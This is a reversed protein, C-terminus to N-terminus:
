QSITLTAMINILVRQNLTSRITMCNKERCSYENHQTHTHTYTIMIYAIKNFVKSYKKDKM